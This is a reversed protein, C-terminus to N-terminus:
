SGADESSIAITVPKIPSIASIERGIPTSSDTILGLSFYQYPRIVILRGVTIDPLQIADSKEGEYSFKGEKSHVMAGPKILEFMSGQRLNDETGQDLIIVQNNAAYQSGAIAGLINAFAGQPAPQPHFTTSLTMTEIGVEPLVVDNILIEQRQSTVQLSSFEEDSDVLTAAAVLRLSTISVEPSERKYEEVQRYIGWETHSHQGDIFLRDNATLFKRGDSTGLVRHANDILDKEVLRDSQLYPLVLEEAITPVAKKEILRVKPSLTVMPKLNLVPQGDRWTLTLRDGPYILHPNEIDPNIQWLRPWLWPHDLYLASIDWLTDGKVVIYTQPANDRITLPAPISESASAINSISFSMSLLAGTICRLFSPM